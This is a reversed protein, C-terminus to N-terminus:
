GTKVAIRQGLKVLTERGQASQELLDSDPQWVGPQGLVVVTSGGFLFMGKEDGRKFPMDPPHTQIIKGVCLAGVEVYALKGFQHTDLISVHRENTCLIEPRYALAMPNVSHLKGGLRYSAQTVGGDPYHFRHYDVPCLRALLVPGGIFPAAREASGLLVDASLATGKIPFKQDRTVKEFAFYRAEAFAGMERLDEPFPRMGPKFARTFFENFTNFRTDEFEEMPIEFDKIFRPIKRRSWGSDQVLGYLKSVFHHALLNETLHQGPRTDYIWRIWKEGYVRETEERQTERNWYVIPKISSDSM